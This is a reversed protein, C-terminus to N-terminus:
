PNTTIPDVDKHGEEVVTQNEHNENLLDMLNNLHMM